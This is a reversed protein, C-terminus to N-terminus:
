HSRAAAGSRFALLEAAALLGFAGLTTWLGAGIEVPKGYIADLAPKMRFFQWAPVAGGAVYLAAFALAGVRLPLEGSMRRWLASAVLVVLVVGSLRLQTQLEGQELVNFVSPTLPLFLALGSLAWRIPAPLGKALNVWVALAIGLALLPLYFAERWIQLEGSRVQPIFKPFEPLDVAAVVLGAAPHSAWPLWYGALALVFGVPRALWAGTM